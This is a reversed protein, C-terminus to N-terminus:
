CDDNDIKPLNEIVTTPESSSHLCNCYSQFVVIFVIHKIMYIKIIIIVVVTAECGEVYEKPNIWVSQNAYLVRVRLQSGEPLSDFNSTELFEVM